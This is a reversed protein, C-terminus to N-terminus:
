SEERGAARNTSVDSHRIPLGAIIAGDSVGDLKNLLFGHDHTPDAAAQQWDCGPRAYKAHSLRGDEGRSQGHRPDQAPQSARRKQDM